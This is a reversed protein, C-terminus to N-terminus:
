HPAHLRRLWPHGPHTRSIADALWARQGADLRPLAAEFDAEDKPRVDKAKALLQVEPDLYPLGDESHRGFGALPVTIDRNRRYVWRDRDTEALILELAWPADPRPRAWLFVEEELWEGPKWPRLEGAVAVRLDWDRLWGRLRRQDRRLLEVDLDHHARTPRAVFLDIAWGGAIWWPFPADRLLEGLGALSPPHWNDLEDAERVEAKGSEAL